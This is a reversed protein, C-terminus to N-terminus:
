KAMGENYLNQEAHILKQPDIQRADVQLLFNENSVIQQQMANRMRYESITTEARNRKKKENTAALRLVAASPQPKKKKQIVSQTGGVVMMFSLDQTAGVGDQYNDM